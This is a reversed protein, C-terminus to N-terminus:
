IGEDWRDFHIGTVSQGFGALTATMADLAALADGATMPHGDGQADLYIVAGTSTTAQAKHVKSGSETLLSLTHRAHTIDM